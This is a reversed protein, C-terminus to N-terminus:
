RNLIERAPKKQHFHAIYIADHDKFAAYIEDLTHTCDNLNDGRFLNDVSASFGLAEKPNVVVILHWRKSGPELVDIEVGPWVQCTNIVAAMM